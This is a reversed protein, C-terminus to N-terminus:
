RAAKDAPGSGRTHGPFTHHIPYSDPLRNAAAPATPLASCYTPLLHNLHLPGNHLVRSTYFVLVSIQAFEWTLAQGDVCVPIPLIFIFVILPVGELSGRDRYCLLSIRLTHICTLLIALAPCSGITTPFFCELCDSWILWNLRCTSSRLKAM